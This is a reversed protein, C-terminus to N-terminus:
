RAGVWCHLMYSLHHTSKNLLLRQSIDMAKPHLHCWKLRCTKYDWDLDESRIMHAGKPLVILLYTPHKRQDSARLCVTVLRTCTTITTTPMQPCTTVLRTTTTTPMQPIIAQNAHPGSTLSGFSQPLPALPQSQMKKEENKHPGKDKELGRPAEM